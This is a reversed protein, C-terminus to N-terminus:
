DDDEELLPLLKLTELRELLELNELLLLYKALELEQASPAPKTSPRSSPRSGPKSRSPASAPRSSPGSPKPPACVAPRSLSVLASFTWGLGIISAFRWKSM